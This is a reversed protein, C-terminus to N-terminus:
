SHQAASQCFNDSPTVAILAYFARWIGMKSCLISFGRTPPEIGDRPVMELILKKGMNSWFQKVEPERAAESRQDAIVSEPPLGLIAAVKLCQADSLTKARGKKHDCVNSRSIGIENAAQNDSALDLKTKVAQILDYSKM